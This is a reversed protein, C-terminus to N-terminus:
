GQKAELEHIIEDVIYADGYLYLGTSEDHLRACTDSEYFVELAREPTIGLRQSVGVTIVGIRQWLIMERLTYQTM